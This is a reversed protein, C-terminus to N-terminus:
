WSVPPKNEDSMFQTMSWHLNGGTGMAISSDGQLLMMVFLVLVYCTIINM